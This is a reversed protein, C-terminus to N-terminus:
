TCDIYMGCEVHLEYVLRCSSFMVTCEATKFYHVHVSALARCCHM